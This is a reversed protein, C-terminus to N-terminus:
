VNKIWDLIYKLPYEEINYTTKDRKIVVEKRLMHNLKDFVKLSINDNNFNKLIKVNNIPDVYRDNSGIIYLLPININQYVPEYNKKLIDKKMPKVHYWGFDRPKYGKKKMEKDIYKSLALNDMEQNKAVLNHILDMVELKKEVSDYKLVNHYNNLGSMLQYKFDEGHKQVPTAWQILFDIEAGKNYSGITAMGGLSHGLLGIKKNKLSEDKRFHEVIYFVDNLMQNVGYVVEFYQGESKNVGRDDYRFVAINNKLFQETLKYHSNRTDPGSGPVIIVIKKFKSKPSLLTGSLKINEEQNLIQIEETSFEDTKDIVTEHDFSSINSFDPIKGVVCSSFILISTYLRIKM